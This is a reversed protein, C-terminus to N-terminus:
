RVSCTCQASICGLEFFLELQEKNRGQESAQKFVAASFVIVRLVLVVLVRLMLVVLVRLLRGVVCECSASYLAPCKGRWM